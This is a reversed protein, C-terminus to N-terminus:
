IKQGSLLSRGRDTIIYKQNPDNPRDPITLTVLLDKRLPNLYNERFSEKNKFGLFRASEELSKEKLLGIFTKLLQRGKKSIPNGGNEKWSGMNENEYLKVKSEKLLKVEILNGGNIILTGMYKQAFEEDSVSSVESSLPLELLLEQHEVDMESTAISFLGM